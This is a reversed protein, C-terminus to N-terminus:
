FNSRPARPSEPVHLPSLAQLPFTPSSIGLSSPHLYRSHSINPGVATEGCIERMGPSIKGNLIMWPAAAFRLGHVNRSGGALSPIGCM